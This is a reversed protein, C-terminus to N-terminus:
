LLIGDDRSTGIRFVPLDASRPRTLSTYIAVTDLWVLQSDSGVEDLELIVFVSRALLRLLNLWEIVNGPNRRLTKVILNAVTNIVM